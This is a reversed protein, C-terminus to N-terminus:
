HVKGYNDGFQVDVDLLVNLKLKKNVYGIADKLIEKAMHEEGRKVPVGQEDHFQFAVPLGLTRTFYLWTDFCFVGTSQNLTSWIDKEARLSHWFGSTPNYLWMSDGLVKVKQKSSVSQIAWNLKWFGELLQQAEEKSSEIGRALKTAGVGYMASYTVVKAKKRIAKIKKYLEEQEKDSLSKLDEM